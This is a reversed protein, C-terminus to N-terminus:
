WHGIVRATIADDRSTTACECARHALQLRAPGAPRHFVDREALSALPGDGVAVALGGARAVPQRRLLDDEAHEAPQAGLFPDRRDQPRERRGMRPERVCSQQEGPRAVWGDVDGGGSLREADAVCDDGDLRRRVVREVIQDGGDIDRQVQAPRAREFCRAWPQTRQRCSARRHDDVRRMQGRDRREIRAGPPRVCRRRRTRTLRDRDREVDEILVVREFERHMPQGGMTLQARVQPLGAALIPLACVRHLVHRGAVLARDFARGAEGGIEDLRWPMEM